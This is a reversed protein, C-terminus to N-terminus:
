VIMDSLVVNMPLMLVHLSVAIVVMLAIQMTIIVIVGGMQSGILTLLVMVPMNEVEQLEAEM